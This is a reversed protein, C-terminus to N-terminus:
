ILADAVGVISEAVIAIFASHEVPVTHLEGVVDLVVSRM